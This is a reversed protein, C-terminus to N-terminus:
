SQENQTQETPIATSAASKANERRIGSAAELDAIRQEFGAQQAEMAQKFQQDQEKLQQDNAQKQAKLELNGQDKQEKRALDGQVKAMEPSIEEPKPQAAAAKDQEAIVQELHDSYAAVKNLRQSFERYEGKRTPNTALVSLHQNAHRGKAELRDFCQRPDLAGQQCDEMDKEASPLHTALHLVHDQAPTVVVEAGMGLISMSNNEQAAVAEDNTKDRGTTLSPAIADVNQYSTMVAVFARKIEAQGIEDFRDINQMLQSVIEIRMAPSGLGLSRNARINEVLQLVTFKGAEGTPSTDKTFTQEWPIGLKDCLRRCKRQFKLADKAGPHYSQLGPNIARRWMEAYQRDKGRMYRNHLGKSVKAREAARIMASKATEEVTPAALDQLNAAATNSSLTQSFGRSVELAPQIGRSIDVHLPNIGNPVFNGGGWRGMKFKSMDANTSPQWMPKISSVVLDAVSNDIADLLSCFPLIDTGLGKISHYTGDSGIDYPFLCVGQDWSEYNDKGEFLFEVSKGMAGNGDIKPIVKQSITGDMEQVFLTYLGITNTQESSVYQDGNKFARQWESWNCNRLKSNQRASQMITRRTAEVNWGAAKAQKENEIKRWLDGSTIPTWIMLRECNDLSANTDQPVYFNSALITRPQWNWRDEWALIGPGHLLMQLDCLQSMDDFGRWNFLLQHFYQAFGRMLEMSQASDGVDLDGDICVPVECVMDFFPTWANMIHGRVRKFNLNSDSARNAKVLDAHRKPANGDFSGQVKNMRDARVKNDRVFRECIQQANLANGARSPVAKGDKDLDALKGDVPSNTAM